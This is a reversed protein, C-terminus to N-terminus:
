LRIASVEYVVVYKSLNNQAIEAKLLERYDMPSVWVSKQVQTFSLEELLRRLHRRKQREVEPIDFVIMLQAGGPLVKAKYPQIKARGKDTLRPIKQADLEILGQKQARYYANRISHTNKKSIRELEDFFANPKFTLMLNPKTYPVLGLLVHRLVSNAPAQKM